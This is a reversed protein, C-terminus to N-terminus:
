TKTYKSAYKVADVAREIVQNPTMNLKYKMHIPSTAIFVHIRPNEADQIAEWACDIDKYNARALAAIEVDRIKEAITKVSEFDGQSSIPFGAEIVDVKLMSLQEAIALKEEKTLNVGPSQEGDRLTTDFVKIKRM